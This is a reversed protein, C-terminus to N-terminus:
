AIRPPLHILDRLRDLLPIRRVVPRKLAKTPVPSLSEQAVALCRQCVGEGLESESACGECFVEDCIVCDFTLRDDGCRGCACKQHAM